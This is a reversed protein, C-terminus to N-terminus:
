QSIVKWDILYHICIPPQEDYVREKDWIELPIFGLHDTQPQQSTNLHKDCGLVVSLHHPHEVSIVPHPCGLSNKGM